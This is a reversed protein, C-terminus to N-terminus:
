TFTAPEINSFQVDSMLNTKLIQEKVGLVIEGFFIEFIHFNQIAAENIPLIRSTTFLNELLESNTSVSHLIESNTSGDVGLM